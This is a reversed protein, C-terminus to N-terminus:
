IPINLSGRMWRPTASTAADLLSFMRNAAGIFQKFGGFRGEVVLEFLNVRCDAFRPLIAYERFGASQPLSLRQTVGGAVANPKQDYCTTHDKQCKGDAVMANLEPLGQWSVFLGALVGIEGAKKNANCEQGEGPDEAHDTPEHHFIECQGSVCSLSLHNKLREKVKDASGFGFDVLAFAYQDQVRKKPWRRPLAGVVGSAAPAPLPRTLGTTAREFPAKSGHSRYTSRSFHADFLPDKSFGACM